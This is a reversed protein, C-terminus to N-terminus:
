PTWKDHVIAVLFIKNKETKYVLRLARFDLGEYKKEFGPFFFEVVDYGSYVEKINNLDTGQSHYANISKLEANIFDVDYVFKKFYEDVTLFETGEFASNWDIKKNQKALQLFHGASLVKNNVTDVYAYPSFRVYEQPHIFLAFKVYNRNKIFGLIKESTNMLLATDVKKNIVTDKKEQTKSAESEPLLSDTSKDSIISDTIPSSEKKVSGPQNCGTFFLILLLTTSLKM